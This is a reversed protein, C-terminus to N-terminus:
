PLTNLSLSVLKECKGCYHGTLEDHIAVGDYKYEEEFRQEGIAEIAAEEDADWFGPAVLLMTKDGCFPCEGRPHEVSWTFHTRVNDRSATSCDAHVPTSTKTKETSM